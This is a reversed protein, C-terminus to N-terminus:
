SWANRAFRCGCLVGAGRPECREVVPAGGEDGEGAGAAGRAAGDGQLAGPADRRVREQDLRRAGRRAGPLAGPVPVMGQGRVPAPGLGRDPELRDAPARRKDRLQPARQGGAPRVTAAAHYPGNREAAPAGRRSRPRVDGVDALPLVELARRRPVALACVVDGGCLAHVPQVAVVALGAYHM